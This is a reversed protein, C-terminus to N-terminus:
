PADAPSRRRLEEFWERSERGCLLIIVFIEPLLLTLGVPFFAVLSLPIAISSMVILPTRVRRDKLALVGLAVATISLLATVISVVAVVARDGNALAAIFTLISVLFAIGAFVITILAAWTVIWPRKSPV